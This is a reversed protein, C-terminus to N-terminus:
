RRWNRCRRTGKFVEDYTAGKMQSQRLRLINDAGMSGFRAVLYSCQFTETSRGLWLCQNLYDACARRSRHRAFLDPQCPCSAPACTTALAGPRRMPDLPATPLKSQGLRAPVHRVSGSPKTLRSPRLPEDATPM